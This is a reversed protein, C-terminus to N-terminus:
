RAKFIIEKFTINKNFNVFYATLMANPLNYNPLMRYLNNELIEAKMLRLPANADPIRVGFYFRLLLYSWDESIGAVEKGTWALLQM